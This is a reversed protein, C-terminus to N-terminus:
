REWRRRDLRLREGPPGADEPDSPDVRTRGAPRRDSAARLSNAAADPRRHDSRARRLTAAGRRGGRGGARADLSCWLETEDVTHSLKRFEVLIQDTRDSPKKSLQEVVKRAQRLKEERSIRPTVLMNYNTTEGAKVKVAPQKTTDWSMRDGHFNVLYPFNDGPAARIVFRGARM